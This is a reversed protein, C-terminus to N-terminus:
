RYDLPYSIGYAYSHENISHQSYFRDKKREKKRVDIQVFYKGRQANTRAALLLLVIPTLLKAEM